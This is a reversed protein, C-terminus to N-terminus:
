RRLERVYADVATRVRRDGFVHVEVHVSVRTFGAWEGEGPRRHIEITMGEFRRHLDGPDPSLGARLENLVAEAALTARQRALVIDTNETFQTLATTFLTLASAVLFITFVVEMLMIGRQHRDPNM